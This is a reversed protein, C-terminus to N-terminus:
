GRFDRRVGSPHLYRPLTYMAPCAPGRRGRRSESEESLKCVPEPQGVRAASCVRPRGEAPRSGEGSGASPAADPRRTVARLFPCPLSSIDGSRRDSAKGEAAGAGPPGPGRSRPAPRLRQRRPDRPWGLGAAAGAGGPRTERIGRLGGLFHACVTNQVKAGSLRSDSSGPSFVRFSLGNNIAPSNSDPVMHHSKDPGSRGWGGEGWGGM